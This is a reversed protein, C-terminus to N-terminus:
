LNKTESAFYKGNFKKIFEKIILSEKQTASYFNVIIYKDIDIFNCPIKNIEAWIKLNHTFNEKKDFTAEIKWLKDKTFLDM